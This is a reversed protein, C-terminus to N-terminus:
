RAAAAKEALWEENVTGLANVGEILRALIDQLVEKEANIELKGTQSSFELTVGGNKDMFGYMAVTKRGDLELRVNCKM